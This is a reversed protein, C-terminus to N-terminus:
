VPRWQQPLTTTRPCHVTRRSSSSRTGHRLGTGRRASRKARRGAKSSSADTERGVVPEAVLSRSATAAAPRLVLVLVLQQHQHQAAEPTLEDTRLYVYSRRTWQVGVGRASRRQQERRKLLPGDAEF